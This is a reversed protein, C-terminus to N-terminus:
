HTKPRPLHQLNCQVCYHGYQDIWWKKGEVMAEAVNRLRKFDDAVISLIGTGDSFMTMGPGHAGQEELVCLVHRAALFAKEEPSLLASLKKDTTTKRVTLVETAVTIATGTTVKKEM